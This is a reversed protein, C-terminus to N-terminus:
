IAPSPPINKLRSIIQDHKDLVEQHRKYQELAITLEERMAKIEGMIEDKFEINQEKIIAMEDDFSNELAKIRLNFFDNDSKINRLESKVIRTENRIAKLENLIILLPDIKKKM